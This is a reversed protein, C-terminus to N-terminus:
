ASTKQFLYSRASGAILFHVALAFPMCMMFVVPDCRGRIVNSLSGALAPPFPLARSEVLELRHRSALSAMVSRDPFSIHRPADLGHWRKGFLRAEKSALDPIAIFLRGGPKLLADAVAFADEPDPLHELVHHMTVLDIGHAYRRVLAHRDSEVHIGISTSLRAAHAHDPEFGLPRGVQEKCSDLFWGDGCGFDLLTLNSDSRTTRYYAPAMLMARIREYMGTKKRHVPYDVYLESADTPLPWQQVLGCAECRWYDVSCGTRLYLDQCDVFWAEGVDCTCALCVFGGVTKTKQM